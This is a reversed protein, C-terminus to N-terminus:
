LTSQAFVRSTVSGHNSQPMLQSDVIFYRFTRKDRFKSPESRTLAIRCSMVATVSDLFTPLSRFLARAFSTVFLNSRKWSTGRALFPQAKGETVVASRKFSDELSKTYGLRNILATSTILLLGINYGYYKKYAIIISYVALHFWLTSLHFDDCQILFSVLLTLGVTPLM